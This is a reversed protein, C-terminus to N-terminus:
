PAVALTHMCAHETMQSEECVMSQLGGSEGTRPIEWALISSNIAM